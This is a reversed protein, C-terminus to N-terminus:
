DVNIFDGQKESIDDEEIEEDDEDENSSANCEEFEEEVFEYKPADTSTAWLQDTVEQATSRMFYKSIKNAKTIRTVARTVFTQMNFSIGERFISKAYSAQLNSLCEKFTSTMIAEKMAEIIDNLKDAIYASEEAESKLTTFPITFFTIALSLPVTYGDGKKVEKHKQTEGTPDNVLDPLPVHTLNHFAEHVVPDCDPIATVIGKLIGCMIDPKWIWADDDHRNTLRLVVVVQSARSHTHFDAKFSDTKCDQSMGALIRKAEPSLASGSSAFANSKQPPKITNKNIRDAEQAKAFEKEFKAKSTFRRPPSKFSEQFEEKFKDGQAKGIVSVHGKTGNLHFIYYQTRPDKKTSKNPTISKPDPIVMTAGTESQSNPLSVNNTQDPSLSSRTAMRPKPM